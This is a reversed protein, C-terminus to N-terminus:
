FLGKEVLESHVSSYKSFDRIRVDNGIATQGPFRLIHKRMIENTNEYTTATPRMDGRMKGLEVDTPGRKQKPLAFGKVM